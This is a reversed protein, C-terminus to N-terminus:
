AISLMNERYTHTRTQLLIHTMLKSSTTRDASPNTQLTITKANQMEQWHRWPLKVSKFSIQIGNEVMTAVSSQVQVVKFPGFRSCLLRNYLEPVMRDAVSAAPQPPRDIYTYQEAQLTRPVNSNELRTQEQLMEPSCEKVLKIRMHGDQKM